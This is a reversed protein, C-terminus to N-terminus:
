FQLPGSNRHSTFKHNKLSKQSPCFKGCLPCNYGATVVHKAEVHEFMRTKAKSEWGCALCRWEGGVQREMQEEVAVQVDSLCVFQHAFEFM